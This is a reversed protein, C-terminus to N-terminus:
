SRSKTNCKDFLYDGCFISIPSAITDLSLSNWTVSTRISYVHTITTRFCPSISAIISQMRNCGLRSRGLILFRGRNRLRGTFWPNEREGGGREVDYECQSLLPISRGASQHACHARSHEDQISLYRGRQLIMRNM